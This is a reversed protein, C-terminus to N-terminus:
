GRASLTRYIVDHLPTRVGAADGFRCIAGVQADLESPKGERIDRQMSATSGAPMRDMFALTDAVADEPIAVGRAAGVAGIESAAAALADRLVDPARLVGLLPEPPKDYGAFVLGRLLGLVSATAIAAVRAAPRSM